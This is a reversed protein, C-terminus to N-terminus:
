FNIIMLADLWMIVLHYSYSKDSSALCVWLYAVTFIFSAALYISPSLKFIHECGALIFPRNCECVTTANADPEECDASKSHQCAGTYFCWASFSPDACQFTLRLAIACHLHLILHFHLIWRAIMWTSNGTAWSLHQKTPCIAEDCSYVRFDASLSSIKEFPTSTTPTSTLNVVSSTM